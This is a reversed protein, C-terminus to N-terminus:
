RITLTFEEYDGGADYAPQILNMALQDILIGDRDGQTIGTVQARPANFEVINGATQGLTWVFPFISGERLKSFMDVTAVLQAEPDATATVDRSNIRASAFGSPHDVACPRMVVQNGMDVEVTTFCNAPDQDALETDQLNLFPAPVTDEYAVGTLLAVDDDDVPVGMFDFELFAPEGFTGVIRVNGRASYMRHVRGDQLLSMDLVPHGSDSPEYQVSVQQDSTLKAVFRDGVAIGATSADPDGFDVTVGAAVGTLTVPTTSSQTFDDTVPTTGDGPYFTAQFTVSTDNVVALVIVELRGSKAGTFTGASTPTVTGTSVQADRAFAGTVATGTNVTQAMGCARLLPGYSPVVGATGSGKLEVRFTMRASTTTPVAALNGIQARNPNRRYVAQDPSWDPEYVLVKANAAAEIVSWDPPETGETGIAVALQQRRTLLSM